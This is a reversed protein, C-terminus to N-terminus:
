LEQDEVNSPSDVLMFKMVAEAVLTDRVFARGQVKGGRGGMRLTEVVLRIQDGPLVAHRLRVRDMGLFVAVKGSHELKRLLLIGAMQALAELTLRKKRLQPPAAKPPSRETPSREQLALPWM